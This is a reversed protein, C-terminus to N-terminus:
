GPLFREQGAPLEILITAGQGPESEAWIRGNHRTIISRAIALGLGSGGEHRGRSKDKRYFRDFIRTLDEPPIGPGSDQISLRIGGEISEAALIIQGGPPTHRLGNELLNSLVQAIRDPDVSLEPLNPSLKTELSINQKQAPAAQAAAARELLSRPSTPRLNLPLENAEALSLTRLDDVLRNLRQAEDHIIHLTEPTSTLVGDRLAEAHGLIISLPTRLDHAIDATMQRRLDRSRALDNSMQNFSSALEGLEDESRVEVQHGLDGGAVARTAATLERLPQTLARTLMVGLILAAATAGLSALIVTNKMRTLFRGENDDPRFPVPGIILTGVTHDDVEIAVGRALEPPPVKQGHQQGSGALVVRGTEDAVTIFGGTGPARSGGMGPPRGGPIKQAIGDWNGHTQYHEALESVLLQQNRDNVFRGFENATTLGVLLAVLM